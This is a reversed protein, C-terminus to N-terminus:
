LENREKLLFLPNKSYQKDYKWAPIFYQEERLQKLSKVEIEELLNIYDLSKYWSCDIRDPILTIRKLPDKNYGDKNPEYYFTLTDNKTRSLEEIDTKDSIIEEKDSIITRSLKKRCGDSCFKADDRKSEFEKHCLTCKKIM